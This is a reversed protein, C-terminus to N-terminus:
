GKAEKKKKIKLQQNKSLMHTPAVYLYAQDFWGM